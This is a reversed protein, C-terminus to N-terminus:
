GSFPFSASPSRGRSSRLTRSPSCAVLQRTPHHCRTSYPYHATLPPSAPLSAPPSPLPSPRRAAARAARPPLCVSGGYFLYLAAHLIYVAYLRDGNVPSLKACDEGDESFRAIPVIVTCATYMSGGVLHLYWMVLFTYYDSTAGGLAMGVCLFAVCFCTLAMCGTAYRTSRSRPTPTPNGPSDRGALSPADWIEWHCMEHVSSEQRM